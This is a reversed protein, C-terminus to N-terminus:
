PIPPPPPPLPAIWGADTLNVREFDDAFLAGVWFTRDRIVTAGYADVYTARLKWRGRFQSLLIDPLHFQWYIAIGNREEVHNFSWQAYLTGDPRFARLTAGFEPTSDRFFAGVRVTDGAGFLRKYNPDEPQPCPPSTPAASHTALDILHYDRYRRQNLWWSSMGNAQANCIGAYPEILEEDANRAAFHLHPGTSNGSSAVLGLYEGRVVTDGIQKPTVSGNKLHRYFSTSGDGHELVVTNSTGGSLSCSDDPFGDRWDIIQGPAAAVVAVTGRAKQRWPFPWVFIDIGTHNYGDSTDYTREGCLYDEVANPWQPDQDVFNSIAWPSFQGSRVDQLPWSFRPEAPVPGGAAQTALRLGESELRARNAAVRLQQALEDERDDAHGGEPAYRIELLEVEALPANEANETCVGGSADLFSGVLLLPVLRRM